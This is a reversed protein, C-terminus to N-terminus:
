TISHPPLEHVRSDAVKHAQWLGYSIVLLAAVLSIIQELARFHIASCLWLLNSAGLALRMRAGQLFFTGVTGCLSGASAFLSVPGGWTLIGIAIAAGSFTLCAPQRFRSKFGTLQLSTFTGLSSVLSLLCATHAGILFNNLSFFLAGVTILCLMRKDNSATLGLLTLALGAVGSARIYLLDM